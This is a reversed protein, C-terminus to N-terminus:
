SALRLIQKGTDRGRRDKAVRVSLAEPRRDLELRLAVPWPIARGGRGGRAERFRPTLLVVTAGREEAALGLKRVTRADGLAGADIMVVDFAGSAAVRVATRSLAARPPRVVLLRALDIGAQAAGPAYLGGEEEPTVWAAYSRADRAHAAAVARLAVTTAGRGSLETVGRPLGRDPLLRDLEPWGFSLVRDSPLLADAHVVGLRALERECLAPHPTIPLASMSFM